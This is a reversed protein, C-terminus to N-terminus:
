FSFIQGSVLSLMTRPVLISTDKTTPDTSLVVWAGNHSTWLTRGRTGLDVETVLRVHSGVAPPPPAARRAEDFSLGTAGTTIQFVANAAPIASAPALAPGGPFGTPPASPIGFRLKITAFVPNAAVDATAELTDLLKHMDLAVRIEALTAREGDTLLTADIETLDPRGNRRLLEVASRLHFHAREEPKAYKTVYGHILRRLAVNDRPRSRIPGARKPCVLAGTKPRTEILRRVTAADYTEGSDVVVPAVMFEDSVADRLESETM